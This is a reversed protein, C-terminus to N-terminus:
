DIDILFSDDDGSSPIEWVTGDPLQNISELESIWAQEPTGDPYFYEKWNAILWTKSIASAGKAFSTDPYITNIKGAKPGSLVILGLGCGPEFSIADFVLFDVVADYYWHGSQRMTPVRIVTGVFINESEFDTLRTWKM